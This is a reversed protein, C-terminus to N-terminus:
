VFALRSKEGEKSVPLTKESYSVNVVTFGVSNVFQSERMEVVFKKLNKVKWNKHPPSKLKYFHIYCLEGGKSLISTIGGFLFGKPSPYLCFPSPLDKGEKGFYSIEM